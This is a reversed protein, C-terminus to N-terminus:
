RTRIQLKSVSVNQGAVEFRVVNERQSPSRYTAPDGLHGPSANVPPTGLENQRQKREHLEYRQRDTDRGDVATQGSM